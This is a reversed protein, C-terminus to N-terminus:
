AVVSLSCPRGTPTRLVLSVGEGGDHRLWRVMVGSEGGRLVHARGAPGCCRPGRWRQMCISEATAVGRPPPAARGRGEGGVTATRERGGGRCQLCRSRPQRSHRSGDSDVSPWWWTAMAQFHGARGCSGGEGLGCPPEGGQGTTGTVRLLWLRLPARCATSLETFECNCIVRGGDCPRTSTRPSATSRRHLGGIRWPAYAHGHPHLPPRPRGRSLM